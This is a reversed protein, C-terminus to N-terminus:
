TKTESIKNKPFFKEQLKVKSRHREMNSEDVEKASINGYRAKEVANFVAQNAKKLNEYEESEVISNWLQNNMQVGLFEHCKEWARMSDESILGKIYLISLYDFAYAEDVNLNIM